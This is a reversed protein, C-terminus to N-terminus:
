SNRTLHIRYMCDWVDIDSILKRAKEACLRDEVVKGYTVEFYTVRYLAGERLDRVSIGLDPGWSPSGTMSGTNMV